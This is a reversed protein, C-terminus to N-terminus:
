KGAKTGFYYGIAIAVLPTIASLLSEFISTDNSKFSIALGGLILITLLALLCTAIWRRIRSDDEIQKIDFSNVEFSEAENENITYKM